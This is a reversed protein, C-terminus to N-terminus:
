DLPPKTKPPSTLVFMGWIATPTTLVFGFIFTMMILYHNETKQVADLVIVQVVMPGFWLLLWWLNKGRETLHSNLKIFGWLAFQLGLVLASLQVALSNPFFLSAVYIAIMLGTAIVMTKSDPIHVMWHPFKSM